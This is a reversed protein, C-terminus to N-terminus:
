AADDGLPYIRRANEYAVLRILEEADKLSCFDEELWRDLAKHLGRRFLLAGLYYLESLGFADSSYLFKSFKGM